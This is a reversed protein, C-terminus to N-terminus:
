GEPDEENPSSTELFDPFFHTAMKKLRETKEYQELQTYSNLLNVFMRKIIDVNSCPQYYADQPSVKMSQLFADIDPKHFIVGQNFANIYFEQHGDKYIMVFHAPLNVGYIPIRMRQAIGLYVISLALPIGKKQDIVANLYSNEVAQYNETSGSFGEKKFLTLNIARVIDIPTPISPLEILTKSVWKELKGRYYALNIEPNMYKSVLLAGEFVEKAGNNLWLRFGEYTEEESMQALIPQFYINELAEPHVQLYYSLHNKRLLLQKEIEEAISTDELLYILTQIEKIESESLM